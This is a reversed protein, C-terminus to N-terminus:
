GPPPTAPAEPTTVFVEFPGTTQGFNWLSLVYRGTRPIEFRDLIPDKGVVDDRAVLRTGDPGYLDFGLDLGTGGTGHADVGILDGQKADFYYTLVTGPGTIDGKEARGGPYIQGGVGADIQRVTRIFYDIQGGKANSSFEVQYTGDFPFQVLALSELNGADAVNSAALRNGFQDYVKIVPDIDSTKPRAEVYIGDFAASEFTLWMSKGSRDNVNLPTRQNIVAQGGPTSASVQLSYDGIHEDVNSVVVTYNGTLSPMFNWLAPDQGDLNDRTDLLAGNPDYLDFQLGLAQTLAKAVVDVRKGRELPLRYSQYSAPQRLTGRIEQPIATFEGGGELQHTDLQYISVGLEGSGSNSGIGLEYYDDRPFQFQGIVEPEGVGGRNSRALLDGAANDIQIFPDVQGSLIIVEVRVPHQFQGQLPFIAAGQPSVDVKFHEVLQPGSGQPLGGATAM